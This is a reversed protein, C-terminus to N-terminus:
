GLQPPDSIGSVAVAIADVADGISDVNHNVVEFQKVLKGSKTASNILVKWSGVADPTFSGYYRGTFGIETMIVDPFNIVDKSKTEDYIEMTVDTLGSTSDKAQYTVEIPEGVKYAGNSM